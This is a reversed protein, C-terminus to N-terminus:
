MSLEKAGELEKEDKQLEEPEFIEFNHREFNELWQFMVRETTETNIINKIINERRFNEIKENVEHWTLAAHMGDNGFKRNYKDYHVDELILGLGPAMPVSVKNSSWVNTQYDESAFGKLVAITYGVMKRIQHLMFSQGKVKITIFEEKDLFPEETKFSIIYRKASPDRFDKRATFNHFNHTGLFRCLIENVKLLTDKDIRYNIPYEKHFEPSLAYTPLTYSYTRACCQNKCNFGKTVRKIDFVRIDNPLYSNINEIDFTEAIKFSVIQRAASVGKDTRAARQFHIKHLDNVANSPISHSKYLAQILESEITKYECNVQMGYYNSGNYALLLAVNRKKIKEVKSENNEENEDGLCKKKSQPEGNDTYQKGEM